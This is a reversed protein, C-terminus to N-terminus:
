LNIPPPEKDKSKDGTNKAINDLAKRQAKLEALMKEQLEIRKKEENGQQASLQYENIQRIQDARDTSAGLLKPKDLKGESKALEDAAKKIGREFFEWELGGQDLAQQLEAVTAEYKEIPTALSTRLSDAKKEWQEAAKKAEEAAKEAQEIAALQSEAGGGTKQKNEERLKAAAQKWKEGTDFSLDFSSFLEVTDVIFGAVDRFTDAVTRAIEKVGGMRDIWDLVSQIIENLTPAVEAALNQLFSEGLSGLRGWLDNLTGVAAAQEDTVGLNRQAWENAERLQEPGVKLLNVAELGAKGFLEMAIKLRDAQSAMGSTQASIMELAKQPGAALLQQADLGLSKLAEAAKGTGTAAAEALNVQLKTILTDITGDDNIGSAEGVSLRLGKLEQFSVGLREAADATADIPGFQAAVLGIGVAAAGAAATVGAFAAGLAIGVPGAGSVLSALKSSISGISLGFGQTDKQAKGLASSLGESSGTVKINLPELQAM